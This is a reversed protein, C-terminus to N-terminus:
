KKNSAPPQFFDVACALNRDFSVAMATQESPDIAYYWTDGRWFGKATPPGYGLRATRPPGLTAAVYAKPRGLILERVRPLSVGARLRVRASEEGASLFGRLWAGLRTQGALAIVMMAGGVLAMEPWYRFARM